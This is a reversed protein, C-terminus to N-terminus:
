VVAMVIDNRKAPSPRKRNVKKMANAFISTYIAVWFYLYDEKIPTFYRFITKLSIQHVNVLVSKINMTIM